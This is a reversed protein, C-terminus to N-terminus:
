AKFFFHYEKTSNQNSGGRISLRNLLNKYQKYYYLLLIKVLILVHM